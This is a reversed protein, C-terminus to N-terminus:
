TEPSSPFRAGVGQFASIRPREAAYIRPRIVHGANGLLSTAKQLPAVFERVSASKIPMPAAIARKM